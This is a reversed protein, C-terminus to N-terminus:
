HVGTLSMALLIFGGIGAVIGNIFLLIGTRKRGGYIWHPSFACVTFGVLILLCSDLAM